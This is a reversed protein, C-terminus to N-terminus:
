RTEAEYRAIQALALSGVDEGAAFAAYWEVTADLSHDLSWAPRWGLLERARSADLRLAPSERGDGAGGAFSISLPSAWRAALVDVLWRVPRVDDEDPGFNWAAALRREECLREALGLYGALPALVHQWPRVHEPNRVVLSTGGLAARMLDPVLRDPAWDGGGFVNGARVTAVAPGQESFYSSRYAHTVLEAAAKSASYPDEGGLPDGEAHPTEKPRYCKDSTVIVASGVGGVARVAELMNVTGVVNTAFTELPEDYSRRVLSQAALHFVVEPRAARMADTLASLDCVDATVGTIRRAIGASEYLSPTTPVDRAYGTVVAGLRHLWLALWSGKFGTHGTVFVRRGRWFAPTLEVPAM